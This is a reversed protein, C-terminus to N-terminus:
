EIAIMKLLCGGTLRVYMGSHITDYKDVAVMTM